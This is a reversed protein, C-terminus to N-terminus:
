AATAQCIFCRDLNPKKQHYNRHAVEMSSCSSCRSGQHKVLGHRLCEKMNVSKQNICLRCKSGVSTAVGHLECHIKGVGAEARCVACADGAFTVEGHKPCTKVTYANGSVCRACKSGQHRTEGHTPCFRVSIRDQGQCRVCNNGRFTTLGHTPCERETFANGVACKKCTDGTHSTEGHVPCIKLSHAKAAACKYCAESQHPTEGHIQCVRLAIFNESLCQKCKGGRHPANAGHTECQELTETNRCKVCENTEPDFLTKGHTSCRATVYRSATSAYPGRAGRKPKCFYCGEEKFYPKGHKECAVMGVKLEICYRCRRRGDKKVVPLGHLECLNGPSEKECDLCVNKIHLAAGHAPCTKPRPKLSNCRACSGGQFTTEGHIACLQLSKTKEVVCSKCAGGAYHTTLGHQACEKVIFRHRVVAPKPHHLGGDISNLCNKDTKWLDGVLEKEQQYAETKRKHIGVIEKRLNAAHRAKWGKFKKAGSGWYGDNLCVEESANAVKVHSVGFYYKKSDTATIKYTYYTRNEDIWEWVSDATTHEVHWGLDEIFIDLNSKRTGDARFLEGLKTGLIRDPGFRTAYAMGLVEKRSGTAVTKGPAVLYAKKGTTGDKVLSMGAHQYVLTNEGTTDQYTFFDAPNQKVIYHKILKSAGGAIRVDGKFALRLLEASYREKMRATRPLCFQVVGLLEDDKKLFIGIATAKSTRAVGQKHHLEIFDNALDTDIIEVYTERAGFRRM